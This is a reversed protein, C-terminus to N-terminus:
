QCFALFHQFFEYVQGRLGSGFLGGARERGCSSDTVSEALIDETFVQDHMTNSCPKHGSEQCEMLLLTKVHAKYKMVHSIGVLSEGKPYPQLGSVFRSNDHFLGHDGLGFFVCCIRLAVFLIGMTKKKGVDPVDKVSFKHRGATCQIRVKVTINQPAQCFINSLFSQLQPVVVLSQQMM